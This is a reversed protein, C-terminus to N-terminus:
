LMRELIKDKNIFHYTTGAIHLIICTILVYITTTHINWLFSAVPKILPVPLTVDLGWFPVPHHGFSSCLWGSLIMTFVSAYLMFHIFKAFILKPLAIKIEYDPKHMKTFRWILRFTMVILLTIGTSKHFWIVSYNNTFAATFGLCIMTFILIVSIWHLLRSTLDYKYM